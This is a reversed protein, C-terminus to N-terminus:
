YFLLCLAQKKISIASLSAEGPSRDKAAGACGQAIPNNPSDRGEGRAERLLPGAVSASRQEFESKAM